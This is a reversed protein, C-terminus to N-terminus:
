SYADVPTKTETQTVCPQLHHPYKSNIHQLLTGNIGVDFSLPGHTTCEDLYISQILRVMHLIEAGGKM